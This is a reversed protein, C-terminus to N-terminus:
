CSLKTWKIRSLTAARHDTNQFLARIMQKVEDATFHTALPGKGSSWRDEIDRLNASLLHRLEGFRSWFHVHQQVLGIYARGTLNDSGNDLGESEDVISGFLDPLSNAVAQCQDALQLAADAPIDQIFYFLHQCLLTYSCFKPSSFGGYCHYPYTARGSSRQIANWPSTPLSRWTSRTALDKAPEKAPGPM